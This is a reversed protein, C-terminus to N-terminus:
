SLVVNTIVGSANITFTIQSTWTGTPAASLPYATATKIIKATTPLQVNSLVGAAVTATGTSRGNAANTSDSIQAITSANAVPAITAALNVKALAGNTVTAAHTGAVATNASNQVVVAEANDVMAVTSALNVGTLTTGGTVVATANHSDAGVSNRVAVTEGNAVTAGNGFEPAGARIQDAWFSPGGNKLDPM